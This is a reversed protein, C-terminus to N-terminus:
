GFKNKIIGERKELPCKKQYVFPPPIIIYHLVVIYRHEAGQEVRNYINDTSQTGKSM